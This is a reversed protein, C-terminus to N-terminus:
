GDNPTQLKGSAQGEEEIVEIKLKGLLQLVPLFALTGTSATLNAHAVKIHGPGTGGRPLTADLPMWKDGIWVETWMHYAFGALSPAYVLGVVTRSPLGRARSLAALLVAHETCDGQRSRAVEAATGLATSFDKQTILEYVHKELARAVSAPDEEEPVVARALEQVVEDDSQIFSSADRDAKTPQDLQDAAALDRDSLRVQRVTLDAQHDDLSHVQQATSASIIEAPNDADMTIRYRVMKANHPNKLDGQPRIITGVILDPAEGAYDKLAITKTTQYTTLGMTSEFSKVAQGKGDAWITSSIPVKNAVTTSNIKLLQRKGELLETNEYDEAVMETTAVIVTSFLPLLAQFKRRDGPKMPKQELTRAAFFFGKYQPSWPINA